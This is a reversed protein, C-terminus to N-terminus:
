GNTHKRAFFKRFVTVVDSEDSISQMAINQYTTRATDMTDWLASNNGFAFSYQSRGIEIYAMFQTVPMIASLYKLVSDGDDSANDGDSAQALYINWNGPDYRERIIKDTLELASSVVTGGTARSTFFAEETCEEATDHHRIFVVELNKYRRTLFLHLLLFFKKAMIKEREGMSYSVDMVCFMVAQTIPKPKVVFNNYRLDVRDLWTIANAKRRLTDIELQIDKKEEDDETELLLLELEKIREIKPTRLAIRRGLGAIATREINLNTPVGSTTFGARKLQHSEILKDSIKILDPLELDDFILDLYEDYSILFGFEDEGGGDRSGQTGRGGGGGGKPKDITDGPLYERNGPLVHDWEGSDTKHGFVPEDTGSGSITIEQDGGDTIKRDGIHKRAAEKIKGRFREIFRQRNSLNKKGPNLRRDIIIPM